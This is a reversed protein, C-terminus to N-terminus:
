ISLCDATPTQAPLPHQVDLHVSGDWTTYACTLTFSHSTFQWQPWLSHGRQLNMYKHVFMLLAMNNRKIFSIGRHKLVTATKTKYHLATRIHRYKNFATLFHDTSLKAKLKLGMIIAQQTQLHRTQRGTCHGKTQVNSSIRRKSKNLWQFDDFIKLLKFAVFTGTHTYM